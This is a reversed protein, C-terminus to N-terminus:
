LVWFTSRHESSVTDWAQYIEQDECIKDKKEIRQRASRGAKNAAKKAKAMANPVKQWPIKKWSSCIM